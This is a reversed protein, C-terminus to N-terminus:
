KATTRQKRAAGFLKNRKAISRGQYVRTQSKMSVTKVVLRMCHVVLVLCAAQKLARMLLGAGSPGRGLHALNGEGRHCRILYSALVSAVPRVGAGTVHVNRCEKMAGVAKRLAVVSQDAAMWVPSISGCLFSKYVIRQWFFFLGM